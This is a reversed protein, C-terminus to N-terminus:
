ANLKKSRLFQFGLDSLFLVAYFLLFIITPFLFSGDLNRFGSFIVFDPQNSSVVYFMYPVVIYVFYLVVFFSRPNVLDNTTLSKRKYRSIVFM